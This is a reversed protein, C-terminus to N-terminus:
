GVPLNQNLGIATIENLIADRTVPASSRTKMRGTAATTPSTAGHTPTCVIGAEVDPLLLLTTARQGWVVLCTFLVYCM